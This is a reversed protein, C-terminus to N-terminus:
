SKGKKLIRGDGQLSKEKFVVSPKFKEKYRFGTAEVHSGYKGRLETLTMVDLAYMPCAEVCITQQGKDLRDHCLDCKDMKAGEHPGFQPADWPCAKLCAAHCEKNGICKDQDVLVIGDKERKVIAEAPCVTVCPPNECHCCAVALYAASLNPFSGKEHFTVRMRNISGAQIDHWDKCAVVCTYCGTCRTQDFYIGLQTM